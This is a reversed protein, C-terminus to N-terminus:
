LKFGLKKIITELATIRADLYIIESNKQIQKEKKEKKPKVYNPNNQYFEKIYQAKDKKRSQRQQATLPKRYFTVHPILPNGEEKIEASENYENIKIM